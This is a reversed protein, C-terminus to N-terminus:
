QLLLRRKTRIVRKLRRPLFTSNDIQDILPVSVSPSTLSMRHIVKDKPRYPMGDITFVKSFTKLLDRVVQRTYMGNALAFYRPKVRMESHLLSLASSMEQELYTEFGKSLPQHYYGHCGIEVLGTSVLNNLEDFTLPRQPSSDKAATGLIKARQHHAYYDFQYMQHYSPCGSELWPFGDGSQTYYASVFMVYPIDYEQALDSFLLNNYYGDDFTISVTKDTPDDMTSFKYGRELLQDILNRMDELSVFLDQATGTLGEYSECLCHFCLCLKM